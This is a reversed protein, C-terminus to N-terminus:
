TSFDSQTGIKNHVIPIVVVESNSLVVTMQTIINHLSTRNKLLTVCTDQKIAELITIKNNFPYIPLYYGKEEAFEIAERM